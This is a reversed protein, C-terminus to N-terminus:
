PRMWSRLKPRDLAKWAALWNRRAAAAEARSAGILQGAVLARAAPARSSAQRLWDETVVADQFSGLVEQVEAVAKAFRTAPRGVAFAAVEAAYRCRKARIRIEHLADDPSDPGVGAAAKDLHKWPGVVLGPLVAEAPASAEQLVVPERAAAVLRELLAAYAPDDMLTLLGARGTDRESSLRDLLHRGQRADEPRLDGVAAGLRELLVDADRVAGLAAAVGRLEERLGDSWDPDLLSRYTRLDSRLRRTAVRAQHVEEADDGLRVGADHDLLRLVSSTLAARLVDVATAEAGVVVPALDPSGAALPGLARAVKP